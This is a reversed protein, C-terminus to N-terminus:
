LLIKKALLCVRKNEKYNDNGSLAKPIPDDIVLKEVDYNLSRLLQILNNYSPVKKERTVAIADFFWGGPETIVEENESVRTDVLIADKTVSDILNLLKMYDPIHYLIGCCLSFDYPASEEVKEWIQEDLANGHLFKYKDM